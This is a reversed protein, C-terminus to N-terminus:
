TCPGHQKRFLRPELAGPDAFLGRAAARARGQQAAYRGGDRGFRYAWAQGRGVMWGGIDDGDQSLAAVTRGYDDKRRPSVDIQRGALRGALAARSAQGGPQCIEPADIGDIRIKVPKGGRAPKVWLTDGDTVHAVKGSWAVAAVANATGALLLLALWARLRTM